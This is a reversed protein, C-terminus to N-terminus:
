RLRQLIGPSAYGDQPLGQSKQYDRLAQVTRPGIRGDVGRTNFGRATLRRQLEKRESRTPARDGHPWTGQM